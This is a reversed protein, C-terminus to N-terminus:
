GATTPTALHLPLRRPLPRVGSPSAAHPWSAHEPLIVYGDGPEVRPAGRGRHAAVEHLKEGPRIGIVRREADPAIAEALDIVRMSPIKPVFVEGGSWTSSRTSCSTSPRRRAHDLLADHARRHDHAVGTARRRAQLAPRRPRPQRRRQRLARLRLARDVDRPTPTARSSSRRPACSPRATSTSRTSPRTPRRAGITLPVDNEIAADVVNQPASRRQDAGGRVPQVRVGAGAEDGGRPRDVDVGRTARTLRARDRVDGILYRLRSTASATAADGVAQARRPQLRADARPSTSPSCASSSRAHRVLRHRRHRPRSKRASGHLFPVHAPHRACSHLPAAAAGARRM